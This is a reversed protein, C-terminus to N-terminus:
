QCSIHLFNIYLWSTIRRQSVGAASLYPEAGRQGSSMNARQHVVRRTNAKAPPFFLALALGTAAQLLLVLINNTKLNWPKVQLWNNRFCTQWIVPNRAVTESCSCTGYAGM